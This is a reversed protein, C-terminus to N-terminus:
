AKPTSLPRLGRAWAHLRNFTYKDPKVEADRLKQMWILIQEARLPAAKEKSRAWTNIVANFIGTTPRLADHGGATYLKNMQLLLSEARQAAATGEGSRAWADVTTEVFSFPSFRFVFLSHSNSIFLSDM